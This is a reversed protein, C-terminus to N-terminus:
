RVFRGEKGIHVMDVLRSGAIAERNSFDIDLGAITQKLGRLAAHLRARSPEPGCRRLAEVMVLANAYGEFSLYGVPVNAAEALSRFQRASPELRSWPYPMVQAITLGSRMGEGLARAVVEGNVISMGYFLANGGAGWHGQMLKAPLDGALYMVVAQPGQKALAAGAAGANGGDGQVAVTQVLQLKREALAQQLLSAAEQGGPNDLHAAAIREVGLTHLHQVIAQAERGTGARVFYASGAVKRRASDAVAYAGVLPAGSDQLLPGAAATTGSGVCGFMALVQRENLLTKYNAVAQDPQLADDLSELRIRRGFLGGGANVQQFALGAGALLARIPVGLAGSLVGTHGLLLERAAAATETARAGWPLAAALGIAAAASRRHLM